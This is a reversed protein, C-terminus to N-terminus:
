LVDCPSHALVPIVLVARGHYCSIRQRSFAVCSAHMCAHLHVGPGDENPDSGEGPENSGEGSSNTVIPGPTSVNMAQCVEPHAMAPSTQLKHSTDPHTNRSAGAADRSHGQASTATDQQEVEIAWGTGKHLELRRGSEEQVRLSARKWTAQTGMVSAPLSLQLWM